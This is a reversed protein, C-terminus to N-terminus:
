MKEVCGMARYRKGGYKDFPEGLRKWGRREYWPAAAARADLWFFLSTPSNVINQKTVPDRITKAHHAMTQAKAYQLLASGVGKGQYEQLTAFKRIRAHCSTESADYGLVGPDVISSYPDNPYVSVVAIPRSTSQRREEHSSGGLFAGFHLAHEDRPLAQEECSTHPWLVAQRIPYTERASIHGLTYPPLHANSNMAPLFLMNSTSSPSKRDAIDSSPVHAAITM